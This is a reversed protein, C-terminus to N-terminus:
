REQRSTARALLLVPVISMAMMAAAYPAAGGYSLATTYRWFETALTTTGIPALLLTATLETSASLTVMAFAAALGPGILPLIVRGFTYWAGHGLTRSVEDLGVPVRAMAGRVGTLALPFFVVAYACILLIPQQYLPRAYRISFFVMSLGIAIGPVARTLYAGQQLTRSGPGRQWAYLAVPVAAATAIAAAVAAYTISTAAASWLSASPLTSSNGRLLWYGLAYLPVGISAVLVAVLGGLAAWRWHGLALRAPPRQDGSPRSFRMRRGTRAELTVILIALACLVLALVSASAADFGLKFEAYIATAFTTYRVVAFTGYEALLYLCVLLAGGALAPRTLPLTVRWITRCWGHGLSRSVDELSPDARRLSAAVPLFVLPYLACTMVMVAGTFGRAWSTLSVWSFGQVFEPVALPMTLLVALVRRAPLDTREVLFAASWGILMTLATVTASLEVTHTLLTGALPRVLLRHAVPWGAQSAEILLFLLPSCVTAVVLLCVGGLISIRFPAQRRVAAITV